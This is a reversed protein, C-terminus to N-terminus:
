AADRIAKIQDHSSKLVSKQKRILDKTRPMVNEDDLAMQYSRQAADEGAECNNLVTRRDGGTFMAKVDMWSRYLKGSTTTGEEPSGGYESVLQSLESKLERSEGVMTSFLNKLDGNEDDQLENIARTYGEIRDNNIKVLDNLAEICAQHEM